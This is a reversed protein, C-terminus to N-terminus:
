GKGKVHVIGRKVLSYEETTMLKRATAESTTDGFLCYRPSRIGIVGAAIPGCHFGIRVSVKFDPCHAVKYVYSEERIELSIEAIEIVHRGDNESPVGSAVMYTEGTTEVKYADHRKIIVDFRDFIDNLFMIVEEPGSRGVLAPFDCLQVFLVTASEYSRPPITGGAKLISAISVPLMENLLRDTQEQAEQLMSNREAVIQELNQAYKENMRIMQDVLNGKTSAFAKSVTQSITKLKPRNEPTSNFCERMLKLLAEPDGDEVEPKLGKKCIENVLSKGKLGTKEFPDTRYILWYLIMGMCYVDGQSTGRPYNDGVSTERLLEPAFMPFYDASLHNEALPHLVNWKVFEHLMSSIGFNTLKLVWNTDILCHKTILLGHYGIASKHLYQLGIYVELSAREILAHLVYFTDLENCCIGYFKTLNDHNLQKLEFLFKLEPRTWKIKKMHKLAIFEAKINAGMLAYSAIVRRKTSLGEGAKTAKFNAQTNEIIKVLEKPIRWHMRFM